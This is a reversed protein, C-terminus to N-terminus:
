LDISNYQKILIGEDGMKVWIKSIFVRNSICDKYDFWEMTTRKKFSDFFAKALNDFDPSFNHDKGLREVAVKERISKPIPIHFQISFNKIPLEKKNKYYWFALEDKFGYYKEIQRKKALSNGVKGTALLKKRDYEKLYEDTQSIVWTGQGRGGSGNIRLAPTPLIPIFYEDLLQM